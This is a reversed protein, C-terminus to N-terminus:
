ESRIRTLSSYKRIISGSGPKSIYRDRNKTV